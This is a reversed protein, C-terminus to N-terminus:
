QLVGWVRGRRVDEREAGRVVRGDFCGRQLEWVGGSMRRWLVCCWGWLVWKGLLVGWVRVRRLEVAREVRERVDRGAVREVGCRRVGRVREPLRPRLVRRWGRLLGRPLLLERLRLWSM